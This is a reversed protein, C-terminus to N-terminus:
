FLQASRRAASPLNSLSDRFQRPVLRLGLLLSMIGKRRGSAMLVLTVVLFIAPALAFFLLAYLLNVRGLEDGNLVGVSACLGFLFSAFGVLAAIRNAQATVHSQTSRVSRSDLTV